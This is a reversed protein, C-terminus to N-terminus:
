SIQGEKGKKMLTGPAATGWDHPAHTVDFYEMGGRPTCGWFVERSPMMCHWPTSQHCVCVNSLSVDRDRRSTRLMVPLDSLQRLAVGYRGRETVECQWPISDQEDRNMRTEGGRTRNQFIQWFVKQNPKNRNQRACDRAAEKAIHTRHISDKWAMFGSINPSIHVPCRSYEVFCNKEHMTDRRGDMYPRLVWHKRSMFVYPQAECHRVACM